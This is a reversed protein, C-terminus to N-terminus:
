AAAKKIGLRSAFAVVSAAIANDPNEAQERRRRKEAAEAGYFEGSHRRRRKAIRTRVANSIPPPARYVRSPTHEPPYELFYLRRAMVRNSSVYKTPHSVGSASRTPIMVVIPDSPRDYTPTGAGRFTMM